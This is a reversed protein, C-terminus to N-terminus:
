ILFVSLLVHTAVSWPRIPALTRWLDLRAIEVQTHLLARSPALATLSVLTATPPTAGGRTESVACCTGDETDGATSHSDTQQSESEHMPCDAAASDAVASEPSGMLGTCLTVHGASLSATLVVAFLRHGLRKVAWLM